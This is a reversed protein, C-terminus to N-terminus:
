WTGCNVRETAKLTCSNREMGDEILPCGSIPFCMGIDDDDDDDDYSSRRPSDTKLGLDEAAKVLIRNVPVFMSAGKGNFHTVKRFRVSNWPIAPTMSSMSLLAGVAWM